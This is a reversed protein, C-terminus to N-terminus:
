ASGHFLSNDGAALVQVFADQLIEDGDPGMDPFRRQFTQSAQLIQDTLRSMLDRHKRGLMVAEENYLRIETAVLRAFKRAAIRDPSETESPDPTPAPQLGFEPSPEQAAPGADNTTPDSDQSVPQVVQVAPEPQATPESEESPTPQAPEQRSFRLLKRRALDLELRIEAVRVLLSVIEPHWPQDDPSRELEIVALTKGGLRIAFGVTESLSEPRVASEPGGPTALIGPWDEGIESSFAHFREATDLDRGRTGWGRLVGKRILYLGSRPAALAAGDLLTHFIDSPGPASTIKRAQTEVAEILSQVELM